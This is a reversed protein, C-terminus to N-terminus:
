PVYPGHFLPPHPLGADPPPRRNSGSISRVKYLVEIPKSKTSGPPFAIEGHLDFARASIASRAPFSVWAASFAFVHIPRVPSSQFVLDGRLVYFSLGFFSWFLSSRPPAKMCPSFGRTKVRAERVAWRDISRSRYSSTLNGVSRKLDVPTSRNIAFRGRDYAM